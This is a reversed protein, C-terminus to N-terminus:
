VPCFIGPKKSSECAGYKLVNENVTPDPVQEFNVHSESHKHASESM